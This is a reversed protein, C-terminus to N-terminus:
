RSRNAGRKGADRPGHLLCHRGEGARERVGPAVAAPRRLAQSDRVWDEYSDKSVGEAAAM